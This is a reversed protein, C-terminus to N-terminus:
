ANLDLQMVISTPQDYGDHTTTGTQLFGLASFRKHVETLEVRSQLELRPLGLDTARAKAIDILARALGQGRHTEGIAVKGVYLAHPKPSLVMCAHPPQGISWVEGTQTQRALDAHTLRHMSSPPDIRGDMYAFSRQILKLVDLLAPDTATHRIATM